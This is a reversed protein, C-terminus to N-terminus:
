DLWGLGQAHLAVARLEELRRPPFVEHRELVSQSRERRRRSVEARREQEGSAHEFPQNWADHM